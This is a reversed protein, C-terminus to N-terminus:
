NASTGINKMKASEAIQNTAMTAGTWDFQTDDRVWAEYEVAVANTPVYRTYLFTITEGSDIYENATETAETM